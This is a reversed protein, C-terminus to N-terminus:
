CRLPATMFLTLLLGDDDDTIDGENAALALATRFFRSLTSSIPEDSFTKLVCHLNISRIYQMKQMQM